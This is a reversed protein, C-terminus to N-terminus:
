PILVGLPLNHHNIRVAFIVLISFLFELPVQIESIFIHFWWTFIQM